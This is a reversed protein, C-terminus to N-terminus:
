PRKKLGFGERRDEVYQGYGPGLRWALYDIRDISAIFRAKSRTDTLAHFETRDRWRRRGYYIFYIAPLALSWLFFTTPGLANWMPAMAGEEKFTFAVFSAVFGAGSLIGAVLQMEPRRDRPMEEM